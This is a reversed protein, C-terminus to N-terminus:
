NVTALSETKIVIATGTFLLESIGQEKLQAILDNGCFPDGSKKNVIIDNPHIEISPIFQTDHSDLLFKKNDKIYSKTPSFSPIDNYHKDYAIRIHVVLTKAERASDILQTVNNAVHPHASLYDKCSGHTAIGHIFDIVLLAKKRTAM